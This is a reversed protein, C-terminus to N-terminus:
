QSQIEMRERREAVFCQDSQIFQFDFKFFPDDVQAVLSVPGLKLRQPRDALKRHQAIVGPLLIHRLRTHDNLVQVPEMGALRMQNRVIPFGRQFDAQPIAKEVQMDLHGHLLDDTVAQIGGM